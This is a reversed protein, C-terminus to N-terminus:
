NGNQDYGMELLAETRRLFAAPQFLKREMYLAWKGAEAKGEIERENIRLDLDYNGLWLRPSGLKEGDQEYQKLNGSRDKSYRVKEMTEELIMSGTVTDHLIYAEKILVGITLFVIGLVMAAEVTFSAQYRKKELEIGAVAGSSAFISSVAINKKKHKWVKGFDCCVMGFQVHQLVTNRVVDFAFKREAGLLTRVSCFVMWRGGRNRWRDPSQVRVASYWTDCIYFCEVLGPWNRCECYTGARWGAFSINERNGSVPYGALRCRNFCFFIFKNKYTGVMSGHTIGGTAEYLVRMIKDTGPSTKEGPGPRM